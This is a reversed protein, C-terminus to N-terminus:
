FNVFSIVDEVTKRKNMGKRELQKEIIRANLTYSNAIERAELEDEEEDMTSVTVSGSKGTDERKINKIVKKPEVTLQDYISTCSTDLTLSKNIVFKPATASESEFQYIVNLGCKICKKRYQKEVGKERRIYVIDEDKSTIKQVHKSTDIVRAKDVPRM